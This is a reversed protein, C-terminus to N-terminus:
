DEPATQVWLIKVSGTTKALGQEELWALCHRLKTAGFKHVRCWAKLSQWTRPTQLYLLVPAAWQEWCPDCMEPVHDSVKPM